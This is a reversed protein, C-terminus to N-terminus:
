QSAQELGDEVITKDDSSMLNLIKMVDDVKTEFATFELEQQASLMAKKKQRERLIILFFLNLVKLNFGSRYFVQVFISTLEIKTGHLPVSYSLFFFNNVSM